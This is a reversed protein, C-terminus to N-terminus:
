DPLPRGSLRAIDFALDSQRVAEQFHKAYWYRQKMARLAPHATDKHKARLALYDEVLRRQRSRLFFVLINV